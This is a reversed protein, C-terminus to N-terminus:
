FGNSVLTVVYVQIQICFKDSAADIAICVPRHFNLCCGDGFQHGGRIEILDPDNAIDFACLYVNDFSLKRCESRANPKEHCLHMRCYQALIGDGSQNAFQARHPEGKFLLDPVAHEERALDLELKNNRTSMAPWVASNFLARVKRVARTLM